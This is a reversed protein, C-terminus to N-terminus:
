GAIRFGTRGGGPPGAGTGSRRAGAGARQATAAARGPLGGSRHAVPRRGRGGPEFAEALEIVRGSVRPQLTVERAPVVQGMVEIVPTFRGREASRVEVLMATERAQVRPAEYLHTAPAIVRHTPARDTGLAAEPMYGCYDDKGAQVFALGEQRDIVTVADGLLLQRDRPGGPHRLLDVLPATVRAAQGEVYRPAAVVGRLTALAARDNAPTIRRDTM